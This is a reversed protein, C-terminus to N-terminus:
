RAWVAVIVAAVSTAVQIGTIAILRKWLKVAGRSCDSITWGPRGRALGRQQLLEDLATANDQDALALERFLSADIAVRLSFYCALPWFLVPAVLIARATSSHALLIGAAGVMAACNSATTLSTGSSLLSATAGCEFRSNM